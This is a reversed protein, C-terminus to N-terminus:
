WVSGESRMLVDGVGVGVGVGFHGSGLGDVVGLWDGLEGEEAKRGLLVGCHM